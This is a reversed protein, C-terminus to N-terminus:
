IVFWGSIRPSLTTATGVTLSSVETTGVSPTITTTGSINRIDISKIAGAPDILTFELTGICYIIDDETTQNDDGTITRIREGSTNITITGDSNLEGTFNGDSCKCTIFSGFWNNPDKDAFRSQEFYNIALVEAITDDTEYVYQNFIDRSQHTAVDLKFQEFPM